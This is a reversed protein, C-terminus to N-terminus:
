NQQAVLAKIAKGVSTKVQKLCHSISGLELENMKIALKAMQMEVLDMVAAERDVIQLKIVIKEGFPAGNPEFFSLMVEYIEDSPAAM